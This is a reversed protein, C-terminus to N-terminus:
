TERKWTENCITTPDSHSPGVNYPGIRPLIVTPPDNYPGIWGLYACHYQVLAVGLLSDDDAVKELSIGKRDFDEILIVQGEELGAYRGEFCTSNLIRGCLAFLPLCPTDLAM